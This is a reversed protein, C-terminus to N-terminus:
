RRPELKGIPIPETVGKPCVWSALDVVVRPDMPHNPHRPCPPFAAGWHEPGEIVAEQIIEAVRVMLDQPRADEPLWIGIASRDSCFVYGALDPDAPAYGRAVLEASLTQHDAILVTLLDSGYIAEVDHMALAAADRVREVDSEPQPTENATGSV